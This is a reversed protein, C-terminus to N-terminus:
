TRCGRRSAGLDANSAAAGVTQPTLPPRWITHQIASSGDSRSSGRRNKESASGSLARSLAV